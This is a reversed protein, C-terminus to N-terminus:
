KFILVGGDSGKTGAFSGGGGAGGVGPSTSTVQTAGQAFLSASNGPSAGGSGSVWITSASGFPLGGPDGNDNQDGNSAIGGSATASVPPPASSTGAPGGTGGTCACLTSGPGYTAGDTGIVSGSQVVISSTGGTGGATSVGGPAGGGGITVTLVTAVTATGGKTTRAGGGGGGGATGGGGGGGGGPGYLYDVSFTTGAPLPLSYVGATKQRWPTRGPIKLTNNVSKAGAQIAKWLQLLDANSPTQGSAAIANVIERQPYELAKPPVKSGQTSATKGVFPANPDTSGSPANYDM